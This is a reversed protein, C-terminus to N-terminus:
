TVVLWDCAVERKRHTAQPAVDRGGLTALWDAFSLCVDGGALRSFSPNVDGGAM